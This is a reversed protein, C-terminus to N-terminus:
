EIRKLVDDREFHVWEEKEHDFMYGRLKQKMTDNDIIVFESVNVFTNPKLQDVFQSELTFMRTGDKSMWDNRFHVCKTGDSKDIDSNLELNKLSFTENEDYVVLEIIKNFATLLISRLKEIKFSDLLSTKSSKISIFM